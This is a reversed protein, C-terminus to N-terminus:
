RPAAVPGMPRAPTAPWARTPGRWCTRTRPAASIASSCTLDARRASPRGLYTMELPRLRASPAPTPRDASVSASPSAHGSGRRSAITPTWPRASASPSVASGYARSAVQGNPSHLDAGAARDDHGALALIIGILWPVAQEATTPRRRNGDRKPDWSATAAVDFATTAAAAEVAVQETPDHEREPEPEPVSEPEPEPPEAAGHELDSPRHRAAAGLDREGGRWSPAAPSVGITIPSPGPM